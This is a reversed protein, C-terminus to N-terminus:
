RMAASRWLGIAVIIMMCFILGISIAGIALIEAKARNQRVWDIPNTPPPLDPRAATPAPASAPQEPADPAPIPDAQQDRDDHAM